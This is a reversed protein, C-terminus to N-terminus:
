GHTTGGTIAAYLNHQGHQPHQAGTSHNHPTSNHVVANHICADMPCMGVQEKHV